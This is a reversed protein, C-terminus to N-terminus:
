PNERERKRALDAQERMDEIRDRDVGCDLHAMRIVAEREGPSARDYAARERKGEAVWEQIPKVEELLQEAMDQPLSMSLTPSAAVFAAELMKRARHRSRHGVPRPVGGTGAATQHLAAAAVEVMEQTITAVERDYSVILHWGEDDAEIRIDEIV